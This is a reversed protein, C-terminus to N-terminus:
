SLFNKYNEFTNTNDYLVTKIYDTFYICLLISKKLYFRKSNGQNLMGNFIFVYVSKYCYINGITLDTARM